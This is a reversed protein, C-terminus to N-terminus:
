ESEPKPAFVSPAASLMASIERKSKERFTVTVVGDGIYTSQEGDPYKNTLECYREAWYSNPEIPVLEWGDPIVQETHAPQPTTRRVLLERAMAKVRLGSECHYGNAYEALQSNSAYNADASPLYVHDKNVCDCYRPDGGAIACCQAHNPAQSEVPNAQKAALAIRALMRVESTVCIRKDSVLEILREESFQELDNNM